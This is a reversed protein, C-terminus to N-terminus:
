HILVHLMTCSTFKFLVILKLPIVMSEWVGFCPLAEWKKKLPLKFLHLWLNSLLSLLYLFLNPLFEFFFPTHKPEFSAHNLDLFFQCKWLILIHVSQDSYGVNETALLTQFFSFFVSGLLLKLRWWSLNSSNYHFNPITLHVFRQGLFGRISILMSSCLEERYKYGIM